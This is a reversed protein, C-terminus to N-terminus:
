PYSTVNAVQNKEAEVYTPLHGAKEKAGQGESPMHYAFNQEVLARYLMAMGAGIALM